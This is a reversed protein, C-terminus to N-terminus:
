SDYRVLIFASPHLIFFLFKCILFPCYVSTENRPEDKM